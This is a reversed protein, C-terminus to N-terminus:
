RGTNVVKNAVVSEKKQENGNKNTVLIKQIATKIIPKAVKVAFKTAKHNIVVNAGKATPTRKFFWWCTKLIFKVINMKGPLTNTLLSDFM